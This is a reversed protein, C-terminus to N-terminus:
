SALQDVCVYWKSISALTTYMHAHIHWNHCLEHAFHAQTYVYFICGAFGYLVVMCTCTCMVMCMSANLAHIRAFVFTYTHMCMMRTHM